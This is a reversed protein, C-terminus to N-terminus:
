ADYWEAYDTYEAPMASKAMQVIFTKRKEGAAAAKVAAEAVAKLARRGAGAPQDACARTCGAQGTANAHARACGAQVAETYSRDHDAAAAGGV